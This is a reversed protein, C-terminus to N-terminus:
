QQLLRLASQPNLNAQALMATASQALMASMAAETNQRASDEDEIPSGAATLNTESVPLQEPEPTLLAQAGSAGSDESISKRRNAQGAPLANSAINAHIIV